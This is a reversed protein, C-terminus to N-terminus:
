EGGSRLVGSVRVRGLLKAIVFVTVGLVVAAALYLAGYAIWPFVVDVPPVALAAEQTLTVFPLVVWSLVLGLGTGAALGVVLLFANELTMWGSLQRHSLGIAQLLAFEGLRERTSVIASVLFGISAFAVAALAGLVLSGILGLAVPDALLERRVEPEALVSAAAFPDRSVAAAVASAEGDATTLWWEDVTLRDGTVDDAAALSAVDVVLFPANPALTPFAELSGVIEYQRRQTLQGLEVVDGVQVGTAALYSASALARVPTPGPAAEGLRLDLVTSDAAGFGAIPQQETAVIPEIASVDVSQESGDSGIVSLSRLTLSGSALAGEPLEVAIRVALLDLPGTPTVPEGLTAAVEDPLAFAIEIEQEGLGVGLRPGPVDHVIGDGDRITVSPRVTRLGPSFTPTFEDVTVPEFAADVVVRFGAPVGDLRV